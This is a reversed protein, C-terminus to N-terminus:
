LRSPHNRSDSDWEMHPLHMSQAQVPIHPVLLGSIGQQLDCVFASWQIVSHLITASIKVGIFELCSDPWIKVHFHELM